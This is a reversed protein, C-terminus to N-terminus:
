SEQRERLRGPNSERHPFVNEGELDYDCDQLMAVEPSLHPEPHLNEAFCEFM